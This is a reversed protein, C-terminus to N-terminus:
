HQENLKKDDDAIGSKIDRVWEPPPNLKLAKLAVQKSELYQGKNYLLGAYDNLPMWNSTDLDIARKYALEASTPDGSSELVLALGHYAGAYQPYIAIAAKYKAIAQPYQKARRFKNGENYIPIAKVWAQYSGKGPFGNADHALVWVNAQVILMAVLVLMRLM